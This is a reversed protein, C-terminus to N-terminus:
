ILLPSPPGLPRPGALWDSAWEDRWRSGLGTREVLARLDLRRLVAQTIPRKADWFVLARILDLAEPGNLVSALLEAQDAERCPLFYCTDDLLTPRGGAPRWPSPEM